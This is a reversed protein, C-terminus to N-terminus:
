LGALPYREMLYGLCDQVIVRENRTLMSPVVPRALVIADGDSRLYAATVDRDNRDTIYLNAASGPRRRAIVSGARCERFNWDELGPSFRLDATPDDGFTFSTGAPVTMTAMTHFVHADGAPVPRDPFATLHLCADVFEAAHTPGSPDGVKGCECTVAPCIDAMALTQMGPPQRFYVITPGFLTALHLTAPDTRSICGYHPNRGTNNHLDITAFVNRAEADRVIQRMMAHEPTDGSPSGPWVRNYDPQGDLRRQGVRAATVNGVFLSLARPLPRDRYNRLVSQIARWGVDENGHQMVVVLLPEPRRGPLHFLTPQGLVDALRDPEASLVAEPLDTRVALLSM